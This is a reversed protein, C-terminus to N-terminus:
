LRQRRRRPAIRRFPRSRCFDNLIRFISHLRPKECATAAHLAAALRSAHSSTLSHPREIARLWPSSVCNARAAQFARDHLKRGHAFPDRRPRRVAPRGERSFISAATSISRRAIRTSSARPRPQSRCARLRGARPGVALAGRIDSSRSANRAGQARDLRDAAADPAAAVPVAPHGRGPRGAPHRAQQSPQRAARRLAGLLLPMFSFITGPTM